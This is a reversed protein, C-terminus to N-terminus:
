REPDLLSSIAILAIGSLLGLMRERREAPTRGSHIEPLLDTAAIYLFTGGTIALV